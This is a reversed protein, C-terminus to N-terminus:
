QRLVWQNSPTDIGGYVSCRCQGPPNYADCYKKHTVPCVDNANIAYTNQQAIGSQVYTLKYYGNYDIIEYVPEPVWGPIPSIYGDYPMVYGPYLPVYGPYKSKWGPYPPKWRQTDRAGPLNIDLYDFEGPQMPKWGYPHYGIPILDRRWIPIANIIYRYQIIYVTVDNNSSWYRKWADDDYEPPPPPPPKIWEVKAPPPQPQNPKSPPPPLVQPPPVDDRTPQDDPQSPQLPQQPPPSSQPPPQQPQQPQPSSPQQLPPPPPPQQPQPSSPQQLPPPPQQPQPQIQIEPISSSPPPPPLPPQQLAPSTPQIQPLPRIPISTPPSTSLRIPPMDPPMDPPIEPPIDTPSKRQGFSMIGRTAGAANPIHGAARYEPAYAYSIEGEPLSSTLGLNSLLRPSTSLFYMLGIILGTIVLIIVTLMIAM